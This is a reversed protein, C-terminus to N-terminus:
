KYVALNNQFPDPKVGSPKTPLAFEFTKEPQDAFVVRAQTKGGEEWVLPVLLKKFGDGPAQKITGWLKFGQAVADIHQDVDVQANGSRRVWQDFFWTMDMQLVDSVAKAYDDTSAPGENATDLFKKTAASFRENGISTRLMHLVLPGRDYLLCIRDRYGQEGGLYNATAIPAGDTCYKDEAKWGAIMKNFGFITKDEGALAGMALGAFYEAFSEAIWNENADSPIAKHGFWAHAIEHALRANVGEVFYNAEEEHPKYAETTLLVMGSPSIGFGYEPVEVIDLEDFPMPGLISTYFKIIGGALKPMNDLVNRRAMAYAHIRISVGDVMEGRSIYKGGFVAVNMAPRDSKSEAVTFDGDDKQTILKGSTVPSWPKKCRVKLTFTFQQGAWSLPAPYWDDILSFYNDDHHEKMDLFVEGSTEFRLKVDSDPTATPPIEVVVEGYRHAFTLDKGTADTIRKLTLKHRPSNWDASDPDRNNLLSLALARTGADRVHYTMDTDISGSKNDQTDVNIDAHTLVVAARRQATWGPIPQISLTQAFRVNYDALKRFTFFRERGAVLDDYVFGVRELGGGLEVYAWRGHGNLRAIAANFEFNGYTSLAGALTSQFGGNMAASPTHPRADDTYLDTFQPESFLILASKFDDGLRGQMPRLAKAVRSANVLMAERDAVDATSYV